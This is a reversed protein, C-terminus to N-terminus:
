GGTKGPTLKQKTTKNHKRVYEIRRNLQHKNFCFRKDFGKSWIKGKLGADKHLPKRIATKYLAVAREISEHNKEVLLHIHNSFVALAFVKQELRKAEQIIAEEVIKKQKANFKVPQKELNSKNIEEFIKNQELIQGDKVYGRKDGQLWTGYTTWTLM